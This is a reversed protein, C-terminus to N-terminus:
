PQRSLTREEYSSHLRRYIEDVIGRDGAGRVSPKKAILTVNGAM